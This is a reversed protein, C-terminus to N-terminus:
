PCSLTRRVGNVPAGNQERPLQKPSSILVSERWNNPRRHPPTEHQTEITNNHAQIIYPLITEETDTLQELTPVDLNDFITILYEALQEFSKLQGINNNDAKQRGLWAIAKKYGIMRAEFEEDSRSMFCFIAYIKYELFNDFSQQALEDYFDELLWPTREVMRQTLTQSSFLGGNIFRNNKEQSHKQYLKELMLINVRNQYSGIAAAFCRTVGLVLQKVQCLAKKIMPSLATDEDRHFINNYQAIEQAYANLRLRRRKAASQPNFINDALQCLFEQSKLVWGRLFLLGTLAWEMAVNSIHAVYSQSKKRGIYYCALFYIM